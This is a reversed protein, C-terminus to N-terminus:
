SVQQQKVQDLLEQAQKEANNLQQQIQFVRSKKGSGRSATDNSSHLSRVSNLSSLNASAQTISSKSASSVPETTVLKNLAARTLPGVQGYGGGGSCVIGTACQFKELAQQTQPGFYTTEAGSSGPGNTAVVYGNKNLIKQLERVDGNNAGLAITKTLAIRGLNAKAESQTIPFSSSIHIPKVVMTKWCPSSSIWPATGEKDYLYKAYELNGDLTNINDGLSAATGTHVNSNIQMVGIMDNGTGGHLVAGSANTYQRFGSECKAVNVLVPADQFVKQAEQKVAIPTLFNAPSMGVGTSALVYSPLAGFFFFLVLSFIGFSFSKQGDESTQPCPIDQKM